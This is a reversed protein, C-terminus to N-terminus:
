PSRSMRGTIVELVEATIEEQRLVNETRRLEVLMEDLHAHAAQLIELSAANAAAFSEVVFEFLRAPLDEIALQSALVPLPLM